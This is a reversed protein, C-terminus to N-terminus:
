HYSQIGDVVFIIFLLLVTSINVVLRIVKFNPTKIGNRRVANELLKSDASTINDAAVMGGIAGAAETVRGAGSITENYSGQMAKGVRSVVVGGAAVFYDSPNGRNEIINTYKKSRKFLETWTLFITYLLFDIALFGICTLIGYMTELEIGILYLQLPFILMCVMVTGLNRAALHPINSITYYKKILKINQGDNNM